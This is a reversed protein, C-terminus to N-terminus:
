DKALRKAALARIAAELEAITRETQEAEHKLRKDLARALRVQQAGLLAEYAALQLAQRQEGLSEAHRAEARAIDERQLKYNLIIAVFALGTFITNLAGFSDGFVGAQIWGGFLHRVAVAYAVCVLLAILGVIVAIAIKRDKM